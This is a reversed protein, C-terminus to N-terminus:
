FIFVQKHKQRGDDPKRNYRYWRIGRLLLHNEESWMLTMWEYKVNYKEWRRQCQKEIIGM